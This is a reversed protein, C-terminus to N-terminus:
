DEEEKKKFFLQHCGHIEGSHCDCGVENTLDYSQLLTPSHYLALARADNRTNRWTTMELKAIHMCLTANKSIYIFYYDSCKNNYHKVKYEHLKWRYFNSSMTFILTVVTEREWKFLHLHRVEFKSFHQLEVLLYCFNDKISCRFAWFASNKRYIEIEFHCLM